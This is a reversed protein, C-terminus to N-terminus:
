SAKAKPEPLNRGAMFGVIATLVAVLPQSAENGLWISVVMGITLSIGIVALVLTQIHYFIFGRTSLHRDLARSVETLDRHGILEENGRRTVYNVMYHGNQGKFEVSYIAVPGIQDTRVVNEETNTYGKNMKTIVAIIDQREQETM